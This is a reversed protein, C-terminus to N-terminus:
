EQEDFSITSKYKNLMSFFIELSKGCHKITLTEQLEGYETTYIGKRYLEYMEYTTERILDANNMWFTDSVAYKSVYDWTQEIFNEFSLIEIMTVQNQVFNFRNKCSDFDM